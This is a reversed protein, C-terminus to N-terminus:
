EVACKIQDHAIGFDVRRQFPTVASTIQSIPETLINIVFWTMFSFLLLIMSAVAIFGLEFDREAETVYKYPFATRLVYTKGNFDFSKAFYSFKQGLVQSYDEYYGEGRIIADLVEPHDVVYEQNYRPGLVRKVHSDYLVKRDDTIISVRFFILPKQDKLKRILADDDPAESIKAILEAARDHMAKSAIKSVMSSTFSFVLAIIIIFVLVYTVFIKKRFSLM